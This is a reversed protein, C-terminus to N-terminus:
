NRSIFEFYRVIPTGDELESEMYYGAGTFLTASFPHDFTLDQTFLWEGRDSFVYYRESSREAWPDLYEWAWLRGSTDWFMRRFHPLYEPFHIAAVEEPDSTRRESDLIRNRIETSVADPRHPIVVAWRSLTTPDLFDIRCADGAYWAVPLDTFIARIPPQNTFPVHDLHSSFGDSETIPVEIPTDILELEDSWRSIRFTREGLRLDLIGATVYRRDSDAGFLAVTGSFFQNTSSRLQSLFVGEETMISLRNEMRDPVYVRGRDVIIQSPYTFEGPGSGRKGFSGILDGKTSFRYVKADRGDVVYLTGDNSVASPVGGYMIFTDEGQDAGFVFREVVQYPNELPAYDHAYTRVSVGDVSEVLYEPEKSSCSACIFAPFATLLLTIGIFRGM